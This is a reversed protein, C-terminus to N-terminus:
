QHAGLPPHRFEGFTIVPVIKESIGKAILARLEPTNREGVHLGVEDKVVQDIDIGSYDVLVNFYLERSRSQVDYSNM